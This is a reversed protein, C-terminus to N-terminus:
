DPSSFLVAKALTNRLSRVAAADVVVDEYSCM